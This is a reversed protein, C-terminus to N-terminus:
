MESILKSLMTEDSVSIFNLRFYSLLEKIVQQDVKGIYSDLKMFVRRHKFLVIELQTNEM